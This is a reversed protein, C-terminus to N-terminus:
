FAVEARLRPMDTRGGGASMDAFPLKAGSVARTPFSIGVEPEGGWFSASTREECPPM